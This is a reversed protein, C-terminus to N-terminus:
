YYANEQLPCESTGPQAAQPTAHGQVSAVARSALATIERSVTIERALTRYTISNSCAAAIAFAARRAPGVEVATKSEVVVVVAAAASAAM